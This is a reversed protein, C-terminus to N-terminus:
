RMWQLLLNEIEQSGAEKALTFPTNGNSDKIELDARYELLLQVLEINKNAIAEMIPYIKYTDCPSQYGNVNIGHELLIHALKVNSLKCAYTLLTLGYEDSYVRDNIDKYRTLAYKLVDEKDFYIATYLIDFEYCDNGMAMPEDKAALLQKITEVDNNRCAVGLPYLQRITDQLLPSAKVSDLSCFLTALFLLTWNIIKMNVKRLRM